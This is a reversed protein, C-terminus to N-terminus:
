LYSDRVGTFGIVFRLVVVVWVNVMAGLPIVATLVGGIITSIMIVKAAGFRDAIYGGPACMILYGYFYAGLVFGQEARSWDYRPGHQM